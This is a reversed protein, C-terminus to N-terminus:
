KEEDQVVGHIRVRYVCTEEPHGNNELFDLKVYQVPYSARENFKFTQISTRNANFTFNGFLFPPDGQSRLGQLSFFISFNLMPSIASTPIQRLKLRKNDKAFLQLLRSFISVSVSFKRPAEPVEGLPSMMKPIHEITMADLIAPLMLRIFVTAEQGRFKFCEGYNTSPQILNHPGFSNNPCGLMKWFFNCSTVLQTNPGMGAIRGGSTLLALDPRGTKDHQYKQLTEIQMAAKDSAERIEEPDIGNEADKNRRLLDNEWFSKLEELMSLDFDKYFNSMSNRINRLEEQGDNFVTSGVFVLLIVAFGTFYIIHLKKFRDNTDQQIAQLDEFHGNCIQQAM